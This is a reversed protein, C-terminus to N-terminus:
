FALNPCSHTIGGKNLTKRGWVDVKVPISFEVLVEPEREEYSVDFYNKVMRSISRVLCTGFCNALFLHCFCSAIRFEMLLLYARSGLQLVLANHPPVVIQWRHVSANSTVFFLVSTDGRVFLDYACM